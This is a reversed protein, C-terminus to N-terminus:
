YREVAVPGRTGTIDFITRPYEKQPGKLYYAVREEYVYDHLEPTIPTVKYISVLHRIQSLCHWSYQVSNVADRTSYPLDLADGWAVLGDIYPAKVESYESPFDLAAEAAKSFHLPVKPFSVRKSLYVLGEAIEDVTDECRTIDYREGRLKKRGYSLAFSRLLDFGRHSLQTRSPEGKPVFTRTCDRPMNAVLRRVEGECRRPIFLESMARTIAYTSGGIGNGFIADRWAMLFRGAMGEPFEQDRKFACWQDVSIGWLERRYHGVKANRYRHWDYMAGALDELTAAAEVRELAKRTSLRPRKYQYSTTERKHDIWDLQAQLEDRVLRIFTEYEKLQEEM